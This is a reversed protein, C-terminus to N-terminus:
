SVAYSTSLGLTSRIADFANQGQRAATGVVSRIGAFLDAGWNSRFGGTVKRYTATPRLERESSNNDPAIDPHELFTLLSDRIKGYRKRLRRGHKNNPALAMITDLDKDFRRRYSRRTAEALETRRRAVICVRLLWAKMRPAFIMDGAEIAFQCNRLQHALCVQWQDAHGQQAGYLDSVWLAPRHGNLVETVVSTARSYRIVHIVVDRNQFVWNWCTQGDIRVGTEDSYIVRSKRLRALIAAVKDDFRPKAKQFMADLAGESLRLAFLHLFLQCLRKYSIAHTFRLYLALAVINPSFPSGEEMGEPVPALTVGQCCPCCGAYREVRTVIPKVPPIEVKDYRSHLTQDNEGLEAECHCCRKAKAIITQEPERALPRGGGKRGLSGQRPGTREGQATTTNAKQGKSPPVSSNDPTKPPEGLKAKLDAIEREQAEVRKTLAEIQERQVQVIAWLELILDDKQEPTLTKLDPLQLPM